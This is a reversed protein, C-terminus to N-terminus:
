AKSEVGIDGATVCDVAAVALLARKGLLEVESEEQGVAVSSSRREGVAEVARSGNTGLRLGM